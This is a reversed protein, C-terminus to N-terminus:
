FYMYKEKRKSVVRYTENDLMVQEIKSGSAINDKVFSIAEKEDIAKVKWRTELKVYYYDEATHDLTVTKLGTTGEPENDDAYRKDYTNAVYAYARVYSLATDADETYVRFFTESYVNFIPKAKGM